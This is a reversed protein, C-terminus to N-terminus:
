SIKADEVATRTEDPTPASDLGIRTVSLSGLTAAVNLAKFYNHELVPLSALLAAAFIDGAGTPNVLTVSPTLYAHPVGRHYYTGGKEARTVILHEVTEAYELEMDPSEVIDEESFVITGISKLVDHEFFRKFWVRGDDDWRRLWGQLTLLQTAQPFAFTIHPDLEGAIPALHVLPASRFHEPIDAASIPAAVGRVYQIRGQETYINEYTTTDAAPISIVEAYPTLEALLPDDAISSTLVGVRLGFAAATRVAYSVTGGAIRGNSTLDATFHGVLLYDPTQSM